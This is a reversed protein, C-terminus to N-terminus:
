NRALLRLASPLYSREDGEARRRERRGGAVSSVEKGCWDCFPITSLCFTGLARARKMEKKERLSELRIM